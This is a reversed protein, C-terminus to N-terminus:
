SFIPPSCTSTKHFMYFSRQLGNSSKDQTHSYLLLLRQYCQQKMYLIVFHSLILSFYSFNIKIMPKAMIAANNNPAYLNPAYLNEFSFCTFTIISANWFFSILAISSNTFAFSELKFILVSSRLAYM